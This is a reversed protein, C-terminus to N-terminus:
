EPEHDASKSNKLALALQREVYRQLISAYNAPLASELEKADLRQTIKFIDLLNKLSRNDGQLAGTVLRKVMGELKTIKKSAGNEKILIVQSLEQDLLTMFNKSHTPRGKPNGSQGKKFHSSQPPKGYGVPYDKPKKM